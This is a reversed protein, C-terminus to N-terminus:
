LQINYEINSLVQILLDHTEKNSDLKLDLLPQRNIALNIFLYSDLQYYEAILNTINNIIHKINSQVTEISPFFEVSNKEHMIDVFFLANSTQSNYISNFPFHFSIWENLLLELNNPISSVYPLLSNYYEKIRDSNENSLEFFRNIISDTFHNINSHFYLKIHSTLVQSILVCNNYLISDLSLGEKIVDETYLKSLQLQM